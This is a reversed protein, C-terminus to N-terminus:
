ALLLDLSALALLLVALGTAAVQESALRLDGQEVMDPGARQRRVSLSLITLGLAAALAGAGFAVWAHGASYGMVASPLGILALGMRFWALSTREAALGPDSPGSPPGVSGTSSTM